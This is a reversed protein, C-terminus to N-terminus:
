LNVVIPTLGTKDVKLMVQSASAYCGLRDSYETPGILSGSQITYGSNEKIM